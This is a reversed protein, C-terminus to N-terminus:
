KRDHADITVEQQVELLELRAGLRGERTETM